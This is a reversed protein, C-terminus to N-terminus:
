SGLIEELKKDITEIAQKREEASLPSIKTKERERRVPVAGEQPQWQTRFGTGRPSEKLAEVTLARLVEKEFKLRKAMEQPADPSGMFKTVGFYAFRFKDIPYSLRRKQPEVVNEVTGGVDSVLKTVIGAVRVVDDEAVDPSVLYSIEYKRLEKDM